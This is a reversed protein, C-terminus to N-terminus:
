QLTLVIRFGVTIYQKSPPVGTYTGSGGSFEQAPQLRHGARAEDFHQGAGQRRAVIGRRFIRALEGGVAQEDERAEGVGRRHGGAVNALIEGGRALEAGVAERHVIERCLQTTAYACLAGRLCPEPAGSGWATRTWEGVRCLGWISEGLSAGIAIHKFVRYKM